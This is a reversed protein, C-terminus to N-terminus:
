DRRILNFEIRRNLARGEDTENTAIPILEGKGELGSIRGESLGFEMLKQKVSEARRVSLAYNYENSGKSDTHGAITIDYNNEEIYSVLDKLMAYYQEKVISKDFDFNLGRDDLVVIVDKPPKYEPDKAKLVNLELANIRITNERMQTTTLTRSVLTLSLVLLMALIISKRVM